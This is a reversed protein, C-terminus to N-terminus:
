SIKNLYKTSLDLNASRLIFKLENHKESYYNNIKHRTPFPKSNLHSRAYQSDRKLTHKDAVRDSFISSM